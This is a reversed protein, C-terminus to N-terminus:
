THTNTDWQATHQVRTRGTKNAVYPATDCWVVVLTQKINHMFVWKYGHVPIDEDAATRLQPGQGEQLPYLPSDPAFWTPCVHTGAGSDIMIEAETDRGQQQPTQMTTTVDRHESAAQQGLTAVLHISPTQSDTPPAPLALQQQQQTPQIGYSGSQDKSYWYNDYVNNPDYWQSTGDQNQEQPTESINYVATRCEKAMHGPQGCRSCVATPNKGKGKNPKTLCEEQREKTAKTEEKQSIGHSSNEKPSEKTTYATAEM